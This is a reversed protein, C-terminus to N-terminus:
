IKEAPASKESIAVAIDHYGIVPFSNMIEPRKEDALGSGRRTELRGKYVLDNCYGMIEDYCRRHESLFLGKDYKHYPCAGLALKMVSSQSTNLGRKELKVFEESSEIVGCEEALAIDLSPSM